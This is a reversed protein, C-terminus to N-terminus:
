FLSHPAFHLDGPSTKPGEGIRDYYLGRENQPCQAPLQNRSGGFGQGTVVRFSCSSVCGYPGGYVSRSPELGEGHWLLSRASLSLFM